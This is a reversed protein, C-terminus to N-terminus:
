NPISRPAPRAKKLHRFYPSGSARTGDRSAQCRGRTDGDPRGGSFISSRGGRVPKRNAQQENVCM